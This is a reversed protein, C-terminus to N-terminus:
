DMSVRESSTEKIKKKRWVEGRAGLGRLNVSVM